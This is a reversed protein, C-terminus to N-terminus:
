FNNRFLNMEGQRSKPSHLLFCGNKYPRIIVYKSYIKYLFYNKIILCVKYPTVLKWQHRPYKISAKDEEFTVSMSYKDISDVVAEYLIGKKKGKETWNAMVRDGVRFPLDGSTEM